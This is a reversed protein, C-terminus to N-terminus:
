IIIAILNTILILGGRATEKPVKQYAVFHNVPSKHSFEGCAKVCFDSLLVVGLSFFTFLCQM